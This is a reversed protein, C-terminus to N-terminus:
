ASPGTGLETAWRKLLEQYVGRRFAVVDMTLQGFARWEWKDFEVGDGLSIGSNPGDYRFLFWYHVQGRGTKESRYEHPLEYALLAPEARLQHLDGEKIGTEERIERLAAELPSEGPNLGGQPLQWSDSTHKRKMALVQAQNNLIVAGAGARYYQSSGASAPKMNIALAHVILSAVFIGIALVTSAQMEVTWVAIIFALVLSNMIATTLAMGGRLLKQRPRAFPLGYEDLSVSRRRLQERLYRQIRKYEGTVFDRQLIRCFTMVGMLFLALLAALAMRRVAHASLSMHESTLLLIVGGLTATAITLFFEIRREGIEENKFIADGFHAYEALLLKEDDINMSPGMWEMLRQQEKETPCADDMARASDESVVCM